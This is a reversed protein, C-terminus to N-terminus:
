CALALNNEYIYKGIIRDEGKKPLHKQKSFHFPNGHHSTSLNNTFFRNKGNRLILILKICFKNKM